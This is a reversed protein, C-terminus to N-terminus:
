EDMSRRGCREFAAPAVQSVEELGLRCRLDLQDHIRARLGSRQVRGMCEVGMQSNAAIGKCRRTHMRRFAQRDDVSRYQMDRQPLM